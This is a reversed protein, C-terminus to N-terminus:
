SGAHLRSRAVGCAAALARHRRLPTSTLRVVHAAHLLRAMLIWPVLLALALAIIALAVVPAASPASASAASGARIVLRLMLVLMLLLRLDWGSRRHRDNGVAVCEAPEIRCAVATVDSAGDLAIEGGRGVGEHRRV